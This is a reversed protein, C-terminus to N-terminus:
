SPSRILNTLTSTYNEYNKDLDQDWDEGMFFQAVYKRSGTHKYLADMYAEEAKSAVDENDHFGYFDKDGKLVNEEANIIGYDDHHKGPNESEEKIQQAMTVMSSIIHNTALFISAPLASTPLILIYRLGPLTSKRPIWIEM